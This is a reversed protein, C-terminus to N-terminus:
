LSDPAGDKCRKRRSRITEPPPTAREARLNRLAAPVGWVVMVCNRVMAVVCLAGVGFGLAIIFVQVMAHDSEIPFFTDSFDENALFTCPGGV